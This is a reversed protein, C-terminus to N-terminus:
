LEYSPTPYVRTTHATGELYTPCEPYVYLNVPGEEQEQDEEGEEAVLVRPARDRHEDRDGHYHRQEDADEQVLEAV